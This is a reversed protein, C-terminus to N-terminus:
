KPQLVAEKEQKIREMEELDPVTIDPTQEYGKRRGIAIWNFTANLDGTESRVSFGSSDASELYIGSWSGVPTVIVRVPVDPSIAESFLRDFAVSAKGNTLQATGNSYFEVEPSEVCFLPEYGASTKVVCQKTGHEVTFDGYVYLANENSSAAKIYATYEDDDSNTKYAYIAKGKRARVSLAWTTSNDSNRADVVLADAVGSRLNEIKVTPYGINRTFWSGGDGYVAYGDTTNAKLATGHQSEALVGIASANHAIGRVGYGSGQNEGNIVGLSISKVLSFRGGSDLPYLKYAEPSGWPSAHIGDVKDANPISIGPDLDSQQITGNVIMASTVSSSQNENVFRSDYASGNQYSSGLSLTVSGSSGGGSLGTGANVATIDGCSFGLDSTQITGNVIMASTISNSQGENVYQTDHNHTASAFASADQGDLHDANMSYPVATLKVRPGLQTGDVWIELWYQDTGDQDDSMSNLEGLVINLIGNQIYFNNRTEQWKLTGGSQANYIKFILNKNGNVREGDQTLIAQYTMHDFVTASSLKYLLAMLIVVVFVIICNKFMKIRREKKLRPKRKRSVPTVEQRREQIMVHDFTQDMSKRNKIM